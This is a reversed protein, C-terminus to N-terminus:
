GEVFPIGFQELLPLIITRNNGWHNVDIWVSDDGPGCLNLTYRVGNPFHVDVNCLVYADGDDDLHYSNDALVECGAKLLDLIKVTAQIGM